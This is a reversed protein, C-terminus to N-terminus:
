DTAPSLNHHKFNTKLLSKTWLLFIDQKIANYTTLLNQDQNTKGEYVGVYLETLM